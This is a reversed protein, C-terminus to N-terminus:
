KKSPLSLYSDKYDDQRSILSTEYAKRKRGLMRTDDRKDDLSLEDFSRLASRENNKIALSNLSRIMAESESEKYEFVAEIENLTMTSNRELYQKLKHERSEVM